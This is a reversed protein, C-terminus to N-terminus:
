TGFATWAISVGNQATVPAGGGGFLAVTASGASWNCTFYSVDDPTVISANTLYLNAHFNVISTLGTAILLSSGSITGHNATDAIGHKMQIAATAAQSIVNGAASALYGVETPTVFSGSSYELGSLSITVGGSPTLALTAGSVIGTNRSGRATSGRKSRPM